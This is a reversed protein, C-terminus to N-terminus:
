CGCHSSTPCYCARPEWRRDEIVERPRVVNRAVPPVMALSSDDLGLVWCVGSEAAGATSMGERSTRRARKLLYVQVQLKVFCLHSELTGVQQLNSTLQGEGGAGKRIGVAYDLHRQM